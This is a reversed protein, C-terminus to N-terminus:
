QNTTKLIFNPDRKFKEEFKLFWKDLFNQPVVLYNSSNMANLKSPDNEYSSMFNYLNQAVCRAYLKRSDERVLQDLEILNEFTDVKLCIKLSTIAVTEGTNPNTITQPTMNCVQQDMGWGTSFTDTPRANTVAGMYNM